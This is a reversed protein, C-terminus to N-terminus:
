PRQFFEAAEVTVRVAEALYKWTIESWTDSGTFKTAFTVYLIGGRKKKV